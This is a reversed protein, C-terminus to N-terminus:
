QKVGIGYLLSQVVVELVRLSFMTAVMVDGIFLWAEYLVHSAVYILQWIWYFLYTTFQVTLALAGSDDEILINVALRTQHQLSLRQVSM